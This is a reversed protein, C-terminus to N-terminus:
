GLDTLGSEYQEKLWEYDNIKALRLPKTAYKEGYARGEEAGRKAEHRFYADPVPHLWGDLREKSEADNKLALKVCERFASRWTSFGDTNFRTVCSLDPMAKFRNSLGTTFDLGWSTADLVQERNFLKVGGYGYELGNVPNKSNWVHVVDQDYQDPIYNFKFTDVIEADADVVWFMKTTAAEAAAKHAEFIGTVDKVWHAKVQASLAEYAAEANPEHYSIFVVDYPKYYTAPKRVYQIGKIKNLLVTETTITDTDINTPWLRLGGYSHVAGTNPNLRQWMHVKNINQTTPLFGEELVEMDVDVDHDITWFFPINKEKHQKIHHVLEDRTMDVLTVDPWRPPLSAVTNMLKLNVFTNNIVADENHTHGPEFTGKPYLRVSKYTDGAASGALFVHVNKEDWQSPYYDFNFDPIIRTYPDIVWYMTNKTIKDFEELQSIVDIGPELKYVPFEKQTSAPEMIYKPRGKTVPVKPCLKVGGYDYQRKTIPNLKQWVHTKGEDWVDPVFDFNFGPVVTVNPEIVWFWDNTSTLRGETEDAFQEFQVREFPSETHIKVDANQWNKPVWRIGGMAKPYKHQLQGKAHFTHIFEKEFVTPVWEIEETLVYDRDVLWCEGRAQSYDNPDDVMFIKYKRTRFPSEDASHVVYEGNWDAPVWRVGGMAEPYKHELQAKIQFTHIANRDFVSPVWQASETNIQYDQDIVWSDVALEPLAEFNEVYVVPFKKLAVPLPEEHIVTDGNWAAPVWRIGGMAEPYKHALQDKVHFAHIMTRQSIPPTWVIEDSIMYDTDVVWTDELVSTVSDVDAVRMVPYVKGRAPVIDVYKSEAEAYKVPVLKVGGCRNDSTNTIDKPYRDTLQGPIKFYHIYKQDHLAPVYTFVESLEHERDVLWFMDTRSKRAYREYANMDDTYFIDYRVPVVDNHLKQKTIDFKKNVLYMGSVRNDWLEVVDKPYRYELGWKFAHIYEQEHDAPVYLLKGNFDYDRDVVWFWETESRKAYFEFTEANFEKNTYFVDYEEDQVPCAPHIIVGSEIRDYAARWNKPVLRIGGLRSDNVHHKFSWSRDQLQYPMRFSHIFGDEFPNPVWNFTDPNVRHDRDVLWVYDDNYIDRQAYDEPDEVYMVPYKAAADLFGHYKIPAEQWDRPYLKIGGEQEPYKHELQGRLHFSHIFNPEFNDPAWNIDDTLKYEKDVCWVHTAHTHTDFYKGPTKTNLIDFTKKCVVRNVEKVGKSGNKPMLRLGGYNKNEWKWIHEYQQDHDAPRFEFVDTDIIEINPEVLWYMKTKATIQDYSDVQVAVPLVEKLKKNEGIYFVDFM